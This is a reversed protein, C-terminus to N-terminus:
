LEVGSRMELQYLKQYEHCSIRNRISFNAAAIWHSARLRLKSEVACKRWFHNPMVM